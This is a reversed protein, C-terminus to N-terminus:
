SGFPLRTDVIYTPDPELPFRYKLGLAQWNSPHVKVVRYAQALDVKALYAGPTIQDIADQLTQYCFKDPNAHDNVAAGTPRSCDHILRM